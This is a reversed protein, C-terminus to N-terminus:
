GLLDHFFDHQFRGAMSVFDGAGPIEAQRAAHGQVAHGVAADGALSRKLLDPDLRSRSIGATGQSDGQQDPM